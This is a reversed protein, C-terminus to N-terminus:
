ELSVAELRIEEGFFFQATKEFSRTYDSVFFRDAAIPHGAPFGEWPTNDLGKTVAQAVAEASDLVRARGQYYAEVESKILPYHTCALLLLDIESLHPSGLYWEIITRSIRNNFFGEEIMPALLPTSLSRVSRVSTLANLRRPYARSAITRKTGIVGIRHSGPMRGIWAVAPEIVNFWQVPSTRWQRRLSQSAVASATNCAIVVARCHWEEILFRAIRQTFRRISQSSKDGYPLHTTDGFFVLPQRPLHRKLASAVTLGGIGSDILGIPALV